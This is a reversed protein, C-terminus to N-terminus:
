DLRLSILGALQINNRTIETGLAHLVVGANRAKLCADAFDPDLMRHPAVERIGMHMAVFVLHTELGNAAMDALLNLHKTARQSPADPFLGLGKDECLTVSKIEVYVLRDGRSLELDFRHTGVTPERRVLTVDPIWLSLDTSALLENARSTNVCALGTHIEVLEWAFELKRGPPQRRFWVKSGEYLLGTMRGTNGCHATIIEDGVDIDVFFRKYRRILRGEVLADHYNIM